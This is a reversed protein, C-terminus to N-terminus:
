PQTAEGILDKADRLQRALWAAHQFIRWPRDGIDVPHVDYGDARVHIGIGGHLEPMPQETGDDDLYCEAHAYAAMQYSAEPFIGSRSTKLDALVRRGDPLDFVADLTGAYRWRRNAVTTELLVPRPKWEDLFAVYSEVHGALEDPLDVEEGRALKEGLRHVETGRRAATDRDSWRAEKLAKLRESPKLDTLDAWHDVAYEATVNGAWNILAPKPIGDGILTTVGDAKAGDLKYWHGRGSSIRQITM